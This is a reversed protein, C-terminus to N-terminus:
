AGFVSASSASRFIRRRFICYIGFRSRVFNALAVKKAEEYVGAQTGKAVIPSPQPVLKKLLM